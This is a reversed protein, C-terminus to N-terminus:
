VPGLHITGVCIVFEFGQLLFGVFRRVDLPNRDQVIALRQCVVELEEGWYKLFSFQILNLLTSRLDQDLTRFGPIAQMVVLSLLCGQNTISEAVM